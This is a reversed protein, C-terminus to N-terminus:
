SSGGTSPRNRKMIFINRNQDGVREYRFEDVGRIALYLGMGGEKRESVPTDLDPATAMTPDFAAGTDELAVTLREADMRAEVGVSGHRGAEAYGHTIINTAVEDVALALRYSDKKGFGAAVAAEQVHKRIVELSELSAPVVLPEM